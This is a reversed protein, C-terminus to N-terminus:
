EPLLKGSVPLSLKPFDADNTEIVITGKIEGPEIQEPDLWVWNEWQDGDPGRELSFRLFPLDSSVKVEFGPTGKRYVMLIQGMRRAAKADGKIESIGFRGLFVSEPFMWVKEQVFTNVPIRLVPARQLNTKLLLDHRQKGSPGEGKLTVTLRYRRGSELTEVRATFRSSPNEIEVIELAEPKRNIIEISSEKITGRPATAFIAPLPEYDIGEVPYAPIAIQSRLPLSAAVALVVLAFALSRLYTSTVIGM